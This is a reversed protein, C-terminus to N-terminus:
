AAATATKKGLVEGFVAVAKQMEDMTGFSLRCHTKEFPPFDRAVLVGKAKCADRFEKAPRGINVFMFNAQADTPKMGRDAFWQMTFDRVAKNRARETAITNPDQQIAAAGAKMALVNLSSTGSGGDWEAMKKITDPHGVAYGMRLGAMGYAKSFTRAVIIRPDEVAFPIHTDHDPDTVYDFYAEDVLITTDPSIRNVHFLFERTARAGVYTATPNNPNCYFILGAGKAADALRDLDVKFEGTLPVPRVPNGMLDAYGGCEEYTPVTAVLPKDRATFLHTASRLIQTSGCGLVVNEPKINFKKTIGDILEGSASSYRGPAAGAPGFAATVADLVVKSPGLPNENSSLCIIGPEIAHLTPEFADWLSNERGRAHIWSSTFAGAAGIGVTQVFRRRTLM